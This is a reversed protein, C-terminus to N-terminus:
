ASEMTQITEKQDEMIELERQHKSPHLLICDEENETFNKLRHYVYGWDKLLDLSEKEHSSQPLHAYNELFVIPLTRTLTEEGGRLTKYEFGQVDLKILDLNSLGLNDITTVEVEEEGDERDTLCRSGWSMTTGDEQLYHAARFM